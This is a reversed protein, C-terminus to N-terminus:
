GNGVIARQPWAGLNETVFEGRREATEYTMRAREGLPHWGGNVRLTGNAHVDLTLKTVRIHQEVSSENYSHSYAVPCSGDDFVDFAVIVWPAKPATNNARRFTKSEPDLEHDFVISCQATACPERACSQTETGHVWIMWYEDDDRTQHAVGSPERDSTVSVQTQACGAMLLALVLM